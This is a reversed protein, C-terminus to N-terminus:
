RRVAPRHRRASWRAGQRLGLLPAGAPRRGRVAGRKILEHYHALQCADIGDRRRRRRRAPLVASRVSLPRGPPRPSAHRHVDGIADGSGIMKVEADYDRGTRIASCRHGERAAAAAPRRAGADNDPWALNFFVEAVTRRASPTPVSPSSRTACGPVRDSRSWATPMPPTARSTTMPCDTLASAPVPRRRGDRINRSFAQGRRDARGRDYPRAGAVEDGRDVGSRRFAQLAKDLMRRADEDLGRGAGLRPQAFVATDLHLDTSYGEVEVEIAEALEIVATDPHVSSLLGAIAGANGLAIAADNWLPLITDSGPEAAVLEAVRDRAAQLQDTGRRDLWGLWDDAPLELATPEM